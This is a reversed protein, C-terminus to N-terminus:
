DEKHFENYGAESYIKLFKRGDAEEDAHFVKEYNPIEGTIRLELNTTLNIQKKIKAKIASAAINFQQDFNYKEPLKKSKEILDKIKLESSDPQYTTLISDILNNFICSENTRFYSVIANRLTWYDSNSTPKVDQSLLKDLADFAQKTNQEPTSLATLELFEDRWYESIKANTDGVWIQDVDLNEIKFIVSKQARQKEPLGLKWDFNEDLFGAHDIKFFILYTEDSIVIHSQLLSGKRLTTFNKLKQQSKKEIRHLRKAVSRSAQKFNKSTLAKILNSIECTESSFKHGQGKHTELVDRALEKIFNTIEPKNPNSYPDLLDDKSIDIEYIETNLIAVAIPPTKQVDGDAPPTM